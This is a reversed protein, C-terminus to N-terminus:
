EANPFTIPGGVGLYFGARAVEEAAAADGSFAHLVGPHPRGAAWPLAQQLLDEDAERNHIVAPLGLEAALELLDAFARQQDPRPSRDRYYDLGIEGIAAVRPSEALRRLRARAQADYTSAYHPHIGVAAYLGRHKEALQVARESSAVDVGPVLIREVGALRARALVQDLDGTFDPLCLHCHTDALPPLDTM